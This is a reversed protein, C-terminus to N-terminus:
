RLDSYVKRLKQMVNSKTFYQIKNLNYRGMEDYKEKSISLIKVIKKKIDTISHPVFLEGGNEDILDVNGRIRGCLCPMGSAMAEMLSVNLGERLSPLIYFDACNYINVIDNRYGILLVHMNLDLGKIIKQLKGKLKGEGAIVYYVKGEKVEPINSIARIVSEHNKNKNLEGVSLIVRAEEPIGLEERVFCPKINKDFKTIDVGIGPIYVIKKAFFSKNACIYDEKTITILVDTWKSLFKEIPYFILWNKVPAGKYFHFGHATYIVKINFKHAVIRGLVGGVPTHCHLLDFRKEKVLTELQKYARWEKIADLPNRPFEIQYYMINKNKLEFVFQNIREERWVTRDKFNCAIHVEYNLEQLIAINDMNFQGIMSPVSAVILVRKIDKEKKVM